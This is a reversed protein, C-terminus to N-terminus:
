QSAPDYFFTVPGGDTTYSINAGGAQGNAGYNEDWTAGITVKYEYTGAPLEFTASYLGSLPDRALAAATCDPAWDAACGMEDNHSSPVTVQLDPSPEDAQATPSLTPSLATGM